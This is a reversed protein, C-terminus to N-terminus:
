RSPRSLQRPGAEPTGPWGEGLVWRVAEDGRMQEPSGSFIIEGRELVYVSTAFGPVHHANSEALLLSRGTATIAAIGDAVEPVIAPSLGEFPEDLILLEADTALARAISLMKREGGSLEVGARGWYGALAPFVSLAFAVREEAPRGGPKAWTAVRVNEEVTLGAFVGSDEPSFGVGARALRHPAWGTVDRGALLVRGASPRLYGMVTRLLTTKGAGNRGLLCTVEGRRAALDVGRLIESSGISVTLNEVRLV